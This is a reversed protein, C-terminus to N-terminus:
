YYMHFTHKTRLNSFYMDYTAFQTPHCLPSPGTPGGLAFGGTARCGRIRGTAQEEGRQGEWRSGWQGARGRGCIGERCGRAFGELPGEVAAMLWRQGGSCTARLVERPCPIALILKM